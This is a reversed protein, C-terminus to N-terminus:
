TLRSPKLESALLKLAIYMRRVSHGIEVIDKLENGVRAIEVFSFDHGKFHSLKNLVFEIRKLAQQINQRVIDFNKLSSIIENDKELSKIQKLNRNIELIKQLSKILLYIVRAIRFM